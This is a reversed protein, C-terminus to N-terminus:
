ILVLDLGSPRPPHLRAGQSHTGNKAKSLNGERRKGNKNHTNQAQKQKYNSVAAALPRALEENVAM